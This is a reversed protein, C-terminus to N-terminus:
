QGLYGAILNDTTCEEVKWRSLQPVIISDDLMRYTQPTHLLQDTSNFPSFFRGTVSQELAPLGEFIFAVM